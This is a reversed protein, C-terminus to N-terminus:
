YRFTETENIHFLSLSPIINIPKNGKGETKNYFFFVSSTVAKCAVEDVIEELAKERILVNITSVYLYTHSM